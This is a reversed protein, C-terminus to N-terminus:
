GADVDGGFHPKGNKDRTAILTHSVDDGDGYLIDIRHKECKLASAIFGLIREDQFTEASLQINVVRHTRMSTKVEYKM